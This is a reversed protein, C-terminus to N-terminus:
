RSVSPESSTSPPDSPSRNPRLRMNTYPSIPKAAADSSRAPGGRRDAIASRPARSQLADRRRQENGPLRAIMEADNWGSSRPAAIPAHDPSPPTAVAAPGNRPPYSMSETDHRSTNKM